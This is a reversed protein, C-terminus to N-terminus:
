LTEGYKVYIVKTPMDSASSTREIIRRVLSRSVSGSRGHLVCRYGTSRVSSCITSHSPEM